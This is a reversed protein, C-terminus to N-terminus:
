SGQKRKKPAKESYVYSDEPEFKVLPYAPWLVLMKQIVRRMATDLQRDTVEEIPRDSCRKLEERSMQEEPYRMLMQLLRFDVPRFMEVRGHLSASEEYNDLKPTKLALATAV